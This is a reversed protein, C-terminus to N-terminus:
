IIGSYRKLYDISTIPNLQQDDPLNWDLPYCYRGMFKEMRPKFFDVDEPTFWNKWEGIKGNRKIEPRVVKLEGTHNVTLNLYDSLDSFDGLIFNEYSFIFSNQNRDHWDMFLALNEEVRKDIMNEMLGSGEMIRFIQVVSVTHPKEIKKELIELIEKYIQPNQKFPDSILRFFMRSILNDRPDRTLGITRSFFGQVKKEYKLYPRLIAKVITRSEESCSPLVQCRIIEETPEFFSNSEVDCSNKILEFIASSGCRAM